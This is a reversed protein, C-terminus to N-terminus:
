AGGVPKDDTVAKAPVAEPAFGERMM